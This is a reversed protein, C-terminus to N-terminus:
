SGRCVCSVLFSSGHVVPHVPAVPDPHGERHGDSDDDEAGLRGSRTPSCPSPRPTFSAAACPSSSSRDSPASTAVSQHQSSVVSRCIECSGRSETPGSKRSRSTGLRPCSSRTWRASSSTSPRSASGGNSPRACRKPLIAFSCERRRHLSAQAGGFGRRRRQTSQRSDAQQHTASATPTSAGRRRAARSSAGTSARRAVTRRGVRIPLRTPKHENQV